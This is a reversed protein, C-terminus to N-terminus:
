DMFPHDNDIRIRRIHRARGSRDLDILVANLQAPGPGTELRVPLQTQFKKLVLDRDM